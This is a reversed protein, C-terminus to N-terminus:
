MLAQSQKFITQLFTLYQKCLTLCGRIIGDAVFAPLEPLVYLSAGGLPYTGSFTVAQGIHLEIVTELTACKWGVSHLHSPCIYLSLWTGIYLFNVERIRLCRQRTSNDLAKKYTSVVGLTSTDPLAPRYLAIHLPHTVSYRRHHGLQTHHWSSVQFSLICVACPVCCVSYQVGNSQCGM